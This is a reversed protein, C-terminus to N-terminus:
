AHKAVWREILQQQLGKSRRVWVGAGEPREKQADPVADRRAIDGTFIAFALTRGGPTTVYGALTSVFNLTGTKAMVLAPQAALRRGRTDLFPIEKMLGRLGAAPGPGLLVRVMDGASIRSAGALGSHDACRATRAGARARIWDTMAQASATHGGVGRRVSASMGVTEAVMNNSYKMMTRLIAALDDSQRAVLVTGSPLTEAIEPTPLPVGQGRALTQFVDAAYLDPRRVPLWRSGRKGLASRAVTWEEVEGKRYSYIPLARDSLKVTATYAKPAYREARADMGIEYGAGTRKWVFEVRNFNLNLGSIAPNYGLWAPQTPDIAEVYPLAGGWARYRGTVGRLGKAALAAAIDGLDDTTLTPDGGGALILDGQVRGGGVPGTAILRTAFRYDGGLTELAYLSTVIKMTSAPPMPRDGDRAELVRGTAADAVVYSVAGGLNAAAVLDAASSVTSAAPVLATAIGRVPSARGPLAAAVAPTALCSLLGGLFVRRSHETM